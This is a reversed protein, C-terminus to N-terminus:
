NVLLEIKKRDLYFIGSLIGILVINHIIRSPESNLLHTFAADIMTIILVLGAWKRIKAIFLGIVCAIELSGIMYMFSISYGWKTFMDTWTGTLKGIGAAIFQLTMLSIFLWSIIKVTRLQM